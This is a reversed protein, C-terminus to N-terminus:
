QAFTSAGVIACIEGRRRNFAKHTAGEPAINAFGFGPAEAGSALLRLHRCASLQEITVVGVNV